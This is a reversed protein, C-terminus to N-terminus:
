AGPRSALASELDPHAAVTHRMSQLLLRIAQESREVEADPDSSFAVAAGASTMAAYLCRGMMRVMDSDVRWGPELIQRVLTTVTDFGSRTETVHIQAGLVAPGDEVVVRRYTAERCIALFTRLGVSTRTERGEHDDVAATIRQTSQDVVQDFVAEFLEKKGSFHHYLAGKTVNAATVIDDLSTYAYGRTGFLEQARDVLSQKTVASHDARSLSSRDM